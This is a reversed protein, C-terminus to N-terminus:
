LCLSRKEIAVSPAVYIIQQHLPTQGLRKQFVGPEDWSHRTNCDWMSLRQARVPLPADIRQRNVRRM